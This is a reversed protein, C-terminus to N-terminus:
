HYVAVSFAFPLYLVNIMFNCRNCLCITQTAQPTQEGHAAFSFQVGKSSLHKQQESEGFRFNLIYNLRWPLRGKGERRGM